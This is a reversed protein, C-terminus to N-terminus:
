FVFTGKIKISITPLAPAVREELEEGATEPGDTRVEIGEVEAGTAEKIQQQQEPTLHITVKPKDQEESMAIV